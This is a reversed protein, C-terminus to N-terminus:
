PLLNGLVFMLFGLLAYLEATIYEIRKRVNANAEALDQKVLVPGILKYVNTDENLLDLEKLVFCFVDWWFFFNIWFSVLASYFRLEFESALLSSGQARARKRRASYHVEKQSAPEESYRRMKVFLKIEVLLPFWYLWQVHAYARARPNLM